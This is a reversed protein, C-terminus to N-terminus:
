FILWEHILLYSKEFVDFPIIIGVETSMMLKQDDRKIQRQLEPVGKWRYQRRKIREGTSVM